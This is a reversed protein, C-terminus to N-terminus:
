ARSKKVKKQTKMEISWNYMLWEWKINKILNDKKREKEKKKEKIYIYIYLKWTNDQNKPLNFGFIVYVNFKIYQSVCM